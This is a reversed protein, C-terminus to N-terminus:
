WAGSPGCPGSRCCCPRVEGDGDGVAAKRAELVDAARHVAPGRAGEAALTVPEPPPHEM